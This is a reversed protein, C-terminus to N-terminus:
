IGIVGGVIAEESLVADWSMTEMFLMGCVGFKFSIHIFSNHGSSCDHFGVKEMAVCGNM